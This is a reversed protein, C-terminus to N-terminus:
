GGRLAAGILQLIKEAFARQDEPGPSGGALRAAIWDPVGRFVEHRNVMVQLVPPEGVPVRLLVRLLYGQTVAVGWGREWVVKGELYQNRVAEDVSIAAGETAARHPELLATVGPDLNRFLMQTLSLTRDTVLPPRFERLTGSVAALAAMVDHHRQCYLKEDFTRSHNECWATGCAAGTADTYECSGAAPDSCGSRQCGRSPESISDEAEAAIAVVHRKNVLCAEQPAADEPAALHRSEIRAPSLVIFRDQSTMLIALGSTEPPLRTVGVVEAGRTVVRVARTAMGARTSPDGARRPETTWILDVEALNLLLSPTSEVEPPRGAAVFELRASTLLFGEVRNCYDSFTQEGPISLSGSIRVFGDGANTCAVVEVQQRDPRPGVGASETM